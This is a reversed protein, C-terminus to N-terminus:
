PETIFGFFMEENTGCDICQESASITLWDTCFIENHIPQYYICILNDECRSTFDIGIEKLKQIIEPSKKRIFCPKM